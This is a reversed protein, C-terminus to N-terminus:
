GAKRFTLNVRFPGTLPHSGPAVPLVGHFRLRDVGGWVVVDGHALPVRWAKDGRAMGGWLFTAPLGLSVSVIPAALDREDRDQHLSLRTGPAYRNILCADPEFAEFGAAQASARALRLLAAPLAPWPEGTLPDHTAYRYGRRDSVWGRAGCNTTAVSMARGGPTEMHRWPARAAIAEVAAWLVPADARAAGHLLVAQSGLLLHAPQAGAAALLDATM